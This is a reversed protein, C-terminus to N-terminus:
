CESLNETKGEESAVSPSTQRETDTQNCQHPIEQYRRNLQQHCCQRDQLDDRWETSSEGETYVTIQQLGIEKYKKRNSQKPTKSGLDNTIILDQFIKESNEELLKIARCKSSQGTKIYKSNITTVQSFCLDLKTEPCPSFKELAMKKKFIPYKRNGMRGEGERRLPHLGWGPYGGV